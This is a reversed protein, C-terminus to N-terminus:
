TAQPWSPAHHSSSESKRVYANTGLCTAEGDAAAHATEPRARAFITRMSHGRAERRRACCRIEMYKIKHKHSIRQFYVSLACATIDRKSNCYCALWLRTSALSTSMYDQRPIKLAPTLQVSMRDTRRRRTARLGDMRVREPRGTAAPGRARRDHAITSSSASGEAFFFFRRGEQCRRLSRSPM